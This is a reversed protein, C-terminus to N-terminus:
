MEPSFYMDSGCWLSPPSNISDRIKSMGFDILKIIKKGNVNKVCWNEFKIDRHIFKYRFKEHIYKFARVM